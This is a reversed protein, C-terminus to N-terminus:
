PRGGGPGGGGPGGGRPGFSFNTPPNLVIPDGEKLDGELVQSNTDSTKGLTVKVPEPVGNRLVYVVRDGDVTRVARNPVLLVDKLESAVINVAATM